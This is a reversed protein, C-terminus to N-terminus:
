DYIGEEYEDMKQNFQDNARKSILEAVINGISTVKKYYGCKAINVIGHHQHCYIQKTNPDYDGWLCDICNDRSSKYIRM